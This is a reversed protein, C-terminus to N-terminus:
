LFSNPLTGNSVLKPQPKLFIGLLLYLHVTLPVARKPQISASGLTLTICEYDLCQVVLMGARWNFCTMEQSVSSYSLLNSLIKHNILIPGPFPDVIM